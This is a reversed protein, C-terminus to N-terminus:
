ADISDITEKIQHLMMRIEDKSADGSHSLTEISLCIDALEPYDFFGCYGKMRHAAKQLAWTDSNNLAEFCSILEESM